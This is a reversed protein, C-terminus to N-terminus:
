FETNNIKETCLAFYTGKIYQIIKVHTIYTNVLKHYYNAM